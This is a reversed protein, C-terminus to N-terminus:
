PAISGDGSGGAVRLPGTLRRRRRRVMTGVDGGVDILDFSGSLFPTGAHKCEGTWLREHDDCEDGEHDETSRLDGLQGAREALGLALELLAHGVLGARLSRFLVRQVGTM